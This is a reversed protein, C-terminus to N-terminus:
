GKIGGSILGGVFLRQLGFFLAAIPLTMVISAAMIAGWDTDYETAFEALGIPLPGPRRHFAPDPAINSREEM